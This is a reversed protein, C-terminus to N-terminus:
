SFLSAETVIYLRIEALFNKHRNDSFKVIVCACYSGSDNILHEILITLREVFLHFWNLKEDLAQRDENFMENVIGTRSVVRIDILQVLLKFYLCNSSFLM